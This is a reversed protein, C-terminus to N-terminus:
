YKGVLVWWCDILFIKRFHESLKCSAIYFLSFEKVQLRRCLYYHVVVQRRSWCRGKDITWIYIYRQLTQVTDPLFSIYVFKVFFFVILLIFFINWNLREYFFFNGQRLTYTSKVSHLYGLVSPFIYRPTCKRVHTM